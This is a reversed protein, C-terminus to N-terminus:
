VALVKSPMILVFSEDVLDESSSEVVLDDNAASSKLVLDAFLAASSEAVL